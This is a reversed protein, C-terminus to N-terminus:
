FRLSWAASTVSDFYQQSGPRTLDKYDSIREESSGGYITSLYFGNTQLRYKLVQIQKKLISLQFSGREGLCLKQMQAELSWCQCIQTKWSGMTEKQQYVHPIAQRTRYREFNMLIWIRWRQMPTQDPFLGTWSPQHWYSFSSPKLSNILAGEQGRPIQHYSTTLDCHPSM